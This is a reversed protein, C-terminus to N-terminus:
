STTAERLFGEIVERYCDEYRQIMEDISFSSTVRQRGAAGMSERQLRDRSLVRMPALLADADAPAVLFGTLGDVVAEPNGGVNTAIVPKAAAMAELIANSFGETLSPHVVMDALQLLQPVDSRQGLFRVKDAIQLERVLAECALREPGDGIMLATARTYEAALAAFARFFYAHGKYRIFNAVVAIVPECHQLQLEVRLSEDLPRSYFAVDIGNRIVRVKDAPLHEARIADQRVAESNALIVRTFRNVWLEMLRLPRFRTKVSSLARRSTILVPVGNLRAALGGLLYGHILVGHVIAPGFQRVEAVLRPIAAILRFGHWGESTVVRLAVVPIGAHRLRRALASEDGLTIVMVDFRRRDLHEALLAFQGEAGGVDLTTTVYM